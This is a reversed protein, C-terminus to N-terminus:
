MDFDSWDPTGSMYFRTNTLTITNVQWLIYIALCQLMVHNLNQYTNLANVSAWFFFSDGYHTTNAKRSLTKNIM